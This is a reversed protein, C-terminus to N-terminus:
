YRESDRPLRATLYGANIRHYCPCTEDHDNIIGCAQLHSYITIAGVFKFGRKKLDAGIREALRGTPAYYPQGEETHRIEAERLDFDIGTGLAKSLAEKAAFIGAMTQAANKGKGQIYAQEEASFFRALFRGDSLLKEMRAIECLDIGIGAIM